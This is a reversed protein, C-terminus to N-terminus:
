QSKFYHAEKKVLEGELRAMEIQMDEFSMQNNQTQKIDEDLNSIEHKLGEVEAQLGPVIDKAKNSVQALKQHLGKKQKMAKNLNKELQEIREANGILKTEQANLLDKLIGIEEEYRQVKKVLM